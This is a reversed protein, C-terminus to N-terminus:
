REVAGGMVRFRRPWLRAPVQALIANQLAHLHGAVENLDGERSPGDVVIRGLRNAISALQNLASREDETLLDELRPGAPQEAWRDLATVAM